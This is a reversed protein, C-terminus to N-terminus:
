RRRTPASFASSTTPSGAAPGLAAGPSRPRPVRADGLCGEDPLRSLPRRGPRGLRAEQPRRRDRDDHRSLGQDDLRDPFRDAADGARRGQAQRRFGECLGPSRRQRHRDRARSRRLEEDGRRCLDRSGAGAPRHPAADGRGGRRRHWATAVIMGILPALRMAFRAINVPGGVSARAAGARPSRRSPM